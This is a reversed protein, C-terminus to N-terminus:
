IMHDYKSQRKVIIIVAIYMIIVFGIFLLTSLATGIMLCADYFGHLLVSIIYALFIFLKKALDHGKNEMLKANGYFVGMFVAFGMHAPVALIARPLAVALGYATVYRLNEFAAFGLSVFVSYVVADFRYNFNPDHWTRRRLFFLKTGEEVAAIVAFAFAATYYPSDSGLAKLLIKEGITELLISALAAFIGNVLLSLLLRPSEKEIVDKRYIYRLLFFAPLLAAAAYIIQIMIPTFLFFM